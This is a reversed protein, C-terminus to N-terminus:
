KLLIMKRIAIQEAKLPNVITLRYFYVGSPHGSGNWEAEYTGSYLQENILTSVKQGLSNYVVLKVISKEEAATSYVEYRIKTIPNFPNPYNQELKFKNPLTKITIIGSPNTNNKFIYNGIQTDWNSVAFDLDRSRLAKVFMFSSVPYTKKISVWGNELDYCYESNNLTDTGNIVSIIKQLPPKSCYLLHNSDLFVYNITDIGDKDYDGFVIAEVVSNTSSTWNPTTSFTGANNYYLRLQSWWGGSIIDIDNDFDVDALAVGSGYGSFSSQWSPITNLTGNNNLYIKLKGSGGLQNNDSIVLDIYNDNNIDGTFLSNANQSADASSWSATRGISDGYNM